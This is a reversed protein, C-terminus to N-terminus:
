HDLTQRRFRTKKKFLVNILAQNVIHQNYLSNLRLSNHGEIFM